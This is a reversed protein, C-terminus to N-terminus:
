VWWYEYEDLASDINLRLLLLLLAVVVQTTKETVTDSCGEATYGTRIKDFSSVLKHCMTGSEGRPVALGATEGTDDSGVQRGAAISRDAEYRHKM